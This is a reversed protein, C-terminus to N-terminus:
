GNPPAGATPNDRWFQNAEDIQAQTVAGFQLMQMLRFNLFAVTRVFNETPMVVQAIVVDKSPGVLTPDPDYRHLYMKTVGFGFSQSGITDIFIIPVDQVIRVSPIEAKPADAM